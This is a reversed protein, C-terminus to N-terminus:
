RKLNVVEEMVSDSVTVVRSNAQFGRQAIILDSFQQTLDVNSLELTGQIIESLTDKQGSIGAADTSSLLNNGERKLASPNAFTTLEFANAQKVPGNMGNFYADITGDKNIRYSELDALTKNGFNFIGVAAGTFNTVQLGDQTTFNGAEDLRFDGARTYFTNTGDSVQFYGKGTVALDAPSGTTSLAGQTFQQNISAVSVGGGIQMSNNGGTNGNADRADKLTESFNDKYTVRSGKFGTTNVNAINDGIVELNKSFSKMGSVGTNLSNLLAM